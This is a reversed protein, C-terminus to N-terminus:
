SSAGKTWAWANWMPGSNAQNDLVKGKSGDANTSVISGDTVSWQPDQFLPLTVSDKAILADAQNLDNIRTTYNLEQDAKNLLDDVQKNSYAMFNEGGQTGGNPTQWEPTEGSKFPSGTWAFLAVQYNGAPLDKGNFDDSTFDDIKVGAPACEAQIKRVTNERRDNTKHGITIEAKQGGKTLIGDPGPTWGADTLVKKAAATDGNGVNAYDDKYGQENPLVLSNGLPKIGNTIQGLVANIIDQRNVCLSLAKELEPHAKFVPNNQQYDLHEITYGAGSNLEYPPGAQKIKQATVNDPQGAAVNIEKNQLQQFASQDDGNTTVNLQSPGAPNGWWKPNRVLVTDTQGDGSKIMFPGASPDISPDVNLWGTGYFTLVKLIDAASAPDAPNLKTIDAVGTKQEVVHAPLMYSFLSQYDAFPKSYTTTVTKGNDACTVSKIYQQGNLANDGATAADKAIGPAGVLWQLYWDSCDVQAGDSWVAKPNIKYVVTQAGNVTSETVSNLLDGDRQVQVKGNDDTPQFASPQVLNLIYSNSISVTAGVNNNYAHFGEDVAVNVPGADAVKPRVYANQNALATPNSNVAAAAGGSSDTGSSGCGSLAVVAGATLAMAGVALSRRM